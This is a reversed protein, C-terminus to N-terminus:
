RVGGCMQVCKQTTADCRGDCEGSLTCSAGPAKLSVCTHSQSDCVEGWGCLSSASACSQGTAVPVGCGATFGCTYGNQCDTGYLCQGGPGLLAGCQRTSAGVCFQGEACQANTYCTGGVPVCTTTTTGSCTLGAGCEMELACTAGQGLGGVLTNQCAPIQGPTPMDHNKLYYDAMRLGTCTAPPSAIWKTLEDICGQAWTGDFQVSGKAMYKNIESVCDSPDEAGLSCHPPVFLPESRDQQTCCQALYDCWSKTLDAFKQCYDQVSMNTGGGTGIGAGAGASGSQGGAGGGSGGDGGNGQPEDSSSSGCGALTACVVAFLCWFTRKRM